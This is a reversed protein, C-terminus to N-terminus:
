IYNGTNYLLIENNESSKGQHDFRNKADILEDFRKFTLNSNLTLISSFTNVIVSMTSLLDSQLNEEMYDYFQKMFNSEMSSRLSNRENSDSVSNYISKIGKFAAFAGMAYLNGVFFSSGSNRSLKQLTKLESLNSSINEKEERAIQTINNMRNLYDYFNSDFLHIDIDNVPILNILKNKLSQIHNKIKNEFNGNAISDFDTEQFVLNGLNVFTKLYLDCINEFFSNAEFNKDIIVNPIIEIKENDIVGLEKNESIENNIEDNKTSVIVNNEIIKDELIDEIDINLNPTKQLYETDRIFSDVGEKISDLPFNLKSMELIFEKLDDLEKVVKEQIPFKEEKKSLVKQIVNNELVGKFYYKSIEIIYDEM